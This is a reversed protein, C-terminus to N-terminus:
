VTKLSDRIFHTMKGFTSVTEVHNTIQIIVKTHIEMKLFNKGMEM